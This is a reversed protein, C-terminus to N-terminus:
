RHRRSSWTASRSSVITESGIDRRLFRYVDLPRSANCRHVCTLTNFRVGHKQPMKAAACVQDFTPEAHKTILCHDHIERPGGISLGVLFRQQKLFRACDDDLLTGSTQLDNEIRQGAKAHKELLAVVKEFSGLGM